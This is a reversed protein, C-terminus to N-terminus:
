NQRVSILLDGFANAHVFFLVPMQTVTTPHGFLEVNYKQNQQIYHRKRYWDYSGSGILYGSILGVVVTPLISLPSDTSQAGGIFGLLSGLVGGVRSGPNSLFIWSYNVGFTLFIMSMVDRMADLMRQLLHPSKTNSLFSSLLKLYPALATARNDANILANVIFLFNRTNLFAESLLFNPSSTISMQKQLHVFAKELDGILSTYGDFDGQEFSAVNVTVNEEACREAVKNTLMACHNSCLFLGAKVKDSKIRQTVALCGPIRCHGKSADDSFSRNFRLLLVVSANMTEQATRLQIAKVESTERETMCKETPSTTGQAFNIKAGSMLEIANGLDLIFKSFSQM